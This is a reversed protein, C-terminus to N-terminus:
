ILYQSIMASLRMLAPQLQIHIVVTSELKACLRRQQHVDRCRFAGGDNSRVVFEGRKEFKFSDGRIM